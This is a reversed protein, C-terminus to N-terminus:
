SAELIAAVPRDPQNQYKGRYPRETPEDLTEFIVQAIPYGAPLRVPWPRDHTLELTLHGTWGPEANTSRSADIFLRANTSKNDIKARLDSPIGIRELASGLRGWFPFLVVAQALRIDYGCSSLGFSLGYAKQPEPFFPEIVLSGNEVRKRITQASLIM